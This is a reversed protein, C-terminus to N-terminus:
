ATELFRQVSRSLAPGTRWVLYLHSPPADPVDRYVVGPHPARTRALEPVAGIGRGAAVLEIWEDFNACTIIPREARPAPWSNEDTTGSITNVVLPLDALDRWSPADGQALPSTAAVALVRRETAIQKSAFGRPLRIQKRYLAIDITRATLAALPDDVRHIEIHGGVAEFRTRAAAFWTDPLLWSFGLAVAARLQLDACVTDLDALIRRTHALFTAGDETLDFRRSTREILRTDLIRELQQITRTLSPQTVHLRRAARTYNAEDCLALYARLHRLELDM